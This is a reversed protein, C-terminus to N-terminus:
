IALFWSEVEQHVTSFIQNHQMIIYLVIIKVHYSSIQNKLFLITRMLKELMTSSMRCVEGCLLLVLGEQIWIIPYEQNLVKNQSLFQILAKAYKNPRFIDGDLHLFDRFKMIERYCKGVEFHAFINLIQEM